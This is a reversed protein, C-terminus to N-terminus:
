SGLCMGQVYVLVELLTSQTCSFLVQVGCYLLKCMVVQGPGILTLRSYNNM